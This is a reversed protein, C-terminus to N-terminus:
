NESGEIRFFKKGSGIPLNVKFWKYDTPAESQNNDELPIPNATNIWDESLTVSEQLQYKAGTNRQLWRMSLNSASSTASVLSRNGRMPNTGFLFEQFNNLGDDDADQNRADQGNTIQTKWSDYGSQMGTLNITFPNENGDSNAISLIGSKTGQSTPAFRVTFTTTENSLLSTTPSTLLHFQSANPGTLTAVIGNLIAAGDNRITVNITSASTSFILTSQGSTMEVGNPAEVAIEAASFGSFVYAAGSDTASQNPISDVGNTSSDESEAGIIVTGQSVAVSSGFRDNSQTNSAKLYALQSWISGSRVFVYASGSDIGDDNPTSNVGSTSSDEMNAGIAITDGSLAVSYGFQDDIGPNSAKLYAQQSWSEGSRLYVYAAGAGIAQENPVSNIGTTSSSELVAGVVLTNGSVAISYGFSDDSGTNSAKLYAQQSWTTGTRNFVYAAGSNLANENHTSNIGNTNSDELYAGIAITNGSISTSWGFNDYAGTNSAKLYAEQNWTIGSRVFVYAAGSEFANENSFSNVGTTSSDEGNAGVVLTNESVSVSWGFQDGAGINSAKLYAQQTWTTGSRSFIYASGSSSALEDPTSSVGSTSSDEGYAGVAVTDGSIAVSYGFYDGSGTNSAKLYAQQTWTSGSRVFVYAAGSNTAMEDPTSNVGTSSSDEAPAGVVITDDFIAVSAGFLGDITAGNNDSKLYAQQSWTSSSRVFVYAAGSESAREDPTTNIGKTSSDEQSAGVVIIDGSVAVSIGFIDNSDTNSAKLYAQQTWTSGSRVFVYAAGSGSSSENPTSNVGTSSSDEGYAGVVITDGSIAVSAGFYDVSGTNSAKLYAQESWTNGNRVFVYAAGSNSSSNNSTSNVGTTSSDEGFAGVVLTDGSVALSSGFRDEAGSNSAKLYAQQIWGTGSRIFVYAAGSNGNSIGDNRPNADEGSAGVVVVDFSVAVRVGFLDSTAGNSAKLYARQNWTTNSRVFVYAAGSESAREDPTTNIGKTSSDEQSAGVVIIDGSVAVSIGFIDNSDTNSAKLYAQQTWTSGSRVFVYAAGSGSSSENPTSNVGTSSSDEGYAGVVITDGSIAVSAGFYDVSGTNSAKLYAQQIWGTGSRLFVYVAGSSPALNNPISNVGTSSSDEGDAGVVVTDGSVAVSSGFEDNSGSDSATNSAKLYAQQAIPDITIPYLAGAEDIVIHFQGHNGLEFRSTLITGKADWAKLGDYNLVPAGTTDQFYVTQSDKSVSPRLSGLTQLTFVLPSGNVSGHPRESVIFGHELGREDNVFWEELGGQWHYSLRQGCAKIEAVGRVTQQHAPFGYSHLELGWVWESESPKALFGRGNFTSTWRQGSNKSQWIGDLKRFEHKWAQHAARISQWDSKKLDAPTHESSKVPQIKGALLPLTISFFLLFSLANM